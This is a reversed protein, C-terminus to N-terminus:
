SQNDNEKHLKAVEIQAKRELAARIERQEEEYVSVEVKAIAYQTSNKWRSVLKVVYDYAGGTDDEDIWLISNEDIPCEPDATTMTRDYDTLSGFQEM